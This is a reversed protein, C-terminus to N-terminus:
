QPTDRWIRPGGLLEDKTLRHLFSSRLQVTAPVLAIEQCRSGDVVNRARCHYLHYIRSDISRAHLPSYSACKNVFAKRSCCRNTCISWRAVTGAQSQASEQERPINLIVNKMCNVRAEVIGLLCLFVVRFM